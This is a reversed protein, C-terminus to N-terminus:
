GTVKKEKKGATSANNHKLGIIDGISGMVVSLTLAFAVTLGLNYLVTIYQKGTGIWQFMTFHTADLHWLVTHWILLGLLVLSTSLKFFVIKM